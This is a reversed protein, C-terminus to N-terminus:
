ISKENRLATTIKEKIEIFIVKVIAIFKLFLQIASKCHAQYCDEQLSKVNM